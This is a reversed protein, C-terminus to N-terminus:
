LNDFQGQKAGALFAAWEADTFILVPGNGKSDRIGIRDTGLRCLEVCNGNYYSLSSKRWSVQSVDARISPM